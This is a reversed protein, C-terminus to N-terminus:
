FDSFTHFDGKSLSLHTFDGKSIPFSSRGKSISFPCDANCFCLLVWKGTQRVVMVLCDDWLFMFAMGEASDMEEYGM